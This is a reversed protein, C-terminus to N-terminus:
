VIARETIPDFLQIKEADVVFPLAQGPRPDVSRDMRAVFSSEGNTLHVFNESGMHEVVDVNAAISGNVTRGDLIDEPRVGLIVQGGAYGNIRAVIEPPVAINM